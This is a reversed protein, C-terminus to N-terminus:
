QSFSSVQASLETPHSQPFFFNAQSRLFSKVQCDLLRKSNSSNTLLKNHLQPSSSNNPLPPPL